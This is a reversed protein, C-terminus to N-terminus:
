ERKRAIEGLPIFRFGGLKLILSKGDPVGWNGSAGRNTNLIVWLLSNAGVTSALAFSFTTACAAQFQQIASSNFSV